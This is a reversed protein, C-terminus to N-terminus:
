LFYKYIEEFESDHRKMLHHYAKLLAVLGSLDNLRLQSIYAYMGKGKEKEDEEDDIDKNASQSATWEAYHLLVEGLEVMYKCDEDAVGKCNNDLGDMHHSSLASVAHGPYPTSSLCGM